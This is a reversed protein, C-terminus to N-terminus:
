SLVKNVGEIAGVVDTVATSIASVGQARTTLSTWLAGIRSKLWSQQEVTQLRVTGAALAAVAAAVDDFGGVIFSLLAGEVDRLLKILYVKAEHPLDDSEAVDDILKRVDDLLSDRAEKSLTASREVKRLVRSAAGLAYLLDKRYFTSFASMDPQGLHTLFLDSLPDLQELPRLYYEADEGDPLRRIAAKSEQILDLFAGVRMFLERSSRAGLVTAWTGEASRGAPVMSCHDLVAIIRGIPNDLHEEPM